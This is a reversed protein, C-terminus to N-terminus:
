VEGEEDPEPRVVEVGAAGFHRRVAFFELTQQARLEERTITGEMEPMWPMAAVLELRGGRKAFIMGSRPIAWVGGERIMAFQRGSWEIMAPDLEPTSM